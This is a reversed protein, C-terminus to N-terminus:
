SWEGQLVFAAWYFPSRWRRERWLALQAQRLAAAPSRNERFMELYFRRMLEGTAEDDVKWLSAVVRQAGAHMFGRVMGVLGEGRLQKGLATDCASLVVLEVPLDLGYIDHLRLFGDRPRGRADYMSLAIGSLGPSENDVIGHTAFHVIRYRSLEPSMAVARSADFGIAQLTLGPPAAAVIARAEQRTAALRPFGRSGERAADGRLDESGDPGGVAELRPDDPEFVPDALVAVARGPPTRTRSQRRLVALVSASPLGVVEHEVLMPVANTPHGPVPLAAFPLYQLAGDGVVLIRKGAMQAAVPGLLMESLRAAETWYEADAREIYRQRDRPDGAATLRATLREYARGAAREIEARPPLEYSTHTDDSVAWLYSREEGLAYELLLTDHDLVERQVEALSLPRPKVLAAYRPSQSRIEAQVQSYREELDQYEAALAEANEAVGGRHRQRAAWDDFANKLVQERKLLEPDVGRRLDVGAESLRDLLSRARARESAGFAAADLRNRPRAQHLRMLVDMLFESYHYVSALYAARLDLNETATRLSEAVSLANEVHRRATELRGVGAATRALGFLGRAETVRDSAIRSLALAEDFRRTARDPEGLLLRVEGLDARTQAALTPDDFSRQALTSAELFDLAQSPDHRLLYVAGLYRLAVAEWRQIGLETGLALAHEFCDRASSEDGTALHTSGLDVLVDVAVTKLGANEFIQFAEQWYELARKTEALDAYAQAIGTLSSGIWVADGMPRLVSLAAEFGDLAEQFEGQRLRLRAKAVRVIAQQRPDLFGPWAREFCSEAEDYRSADSQVFGEHILSRALDKRDGLREWIQAAEDYRELAEEFRQHLYAVEGLCMQARAEAGESDHHRALELARTCQARARDYAEDREAVLAQAVGFGSRIESELIRDPSKVALALAVRFARASDALLGLQGYTMGIGRAARAARGNDGQRTWTDLADEYADVAAHSAGEEYRLRLGEAEAFREEPDPSSRCGGEVALAALVGLAALSARSRTVCGRWKL